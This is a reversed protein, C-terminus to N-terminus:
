KRGGNLLSFLPLCIKKLGIGIATGTIVTLVSVGFYEFLCFFGNKMPFLHIWGKKLYENLLPMHIAYLFFSFVSFYAAINYLKPNSTITLSIKLLLICASIHMFHMMIGGEGFIKYEGLFCFLFLAIAESYKIEDIKKLLDFNYYGWYLGSVYFFLAEIRIFYIEIKLIYAIFILIFFGIKFKKMLFKIFPSIIVFIFLDRIFWLQRAFEPFGEGGRKYGLLKHVWDMKTWTFMNSEPHQIVSPAIKLIIIKAFTFYLGYLAIWLIYPLLLAKCKKKLLTKYGDAKRAQLYSAFLFFLPVAGRAIGQSILLQIWTSVTNPCFEVESGGIEVIDAIYKFTYNNHFFVILVALVFRLATIRKSTEEPIIAEQLKLNENQEDPDM